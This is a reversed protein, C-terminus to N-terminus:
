ERYAPGRPLVRLVVYVQRERDPRFRVRWDGVRLRWEGQLAGTLRRVDGQGRTAVLRDLAEFIRRRMDAPCRALEREARPTLEYQWEGSM